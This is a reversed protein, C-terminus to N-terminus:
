VCRMWRANVLDGNWGNCISEIWLENSEDQYMLMLFQWTMADEFRGLQIAIYRRKAYTSQYERHELYKYILEEKTM